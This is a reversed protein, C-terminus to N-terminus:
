AGPSGSGGARDPAAGPGARGSEWVRESRSWETVPRPPDDYLRGMAAETPAWEFVRPPEFDTSLHAVASWWYLGRLVREFKGLWVGWVGRNDPDDKVSLGFHIVQRRYTGRPYPAPPAFMGRVVWPWDDAEPVAALAQRNLDHTWRFREGVRWSAGVVCGYVIAEHGM